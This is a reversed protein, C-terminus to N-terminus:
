SGYYPGGKYHGYKHYYSSEEVKVYNMVTGLIRTGVSELDRVAQRLSGRRTNRSDLVLLVGDAQTALISSDSVLGTPPADILVYDFEDRIQDLFEAFSRSDLLEAPNPPTPGVTVVKLGAMPQQWVEELRREGALLNVIGWINRMEFVKHVTPKRLDCDLILIKKDAQALVVGLNACITSKGDQVGPSTVVIVKPPTDVLSYLLSTRLIRYAESTTSAPDLITVLGESLDDNAESRGQRSRLFHIL